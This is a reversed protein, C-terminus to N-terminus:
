GKRSNDIREILQNVKEALDPFSDHRRLHVRVGKEGALVREIDSEIRYVPGAVRHTMFIGVVIMLVMIALDNILLSALVELFEEARISGGASRVALFIVAIGAAVLLLGGAVVSLSMAVAGYQFRGNVVKIRRKHFVKNM